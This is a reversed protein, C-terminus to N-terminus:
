STNDYNLNFLGSVDRSSKYSLIYQDTHTIVRVRKTRTVYHGRSTRQRYHRTEYHYCQCNFRIIPSTEFYKGMQYEIGKNDRKNCLYKSTSSRFEVILYFIYFM